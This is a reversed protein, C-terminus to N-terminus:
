RDRNGRGDSDDDRRSRHRAREALLSDYTAAQEATLVAKIAERTESVIERYRPRFEEEFEESLEKTRQRHYAVISDVRSRQGAELEVQDIVYRRERHRDDDHDRRDGEETEEAAQGAILTRDVAFGVLFGSLFVLLFVGLTVLRVRRSSSSTDM